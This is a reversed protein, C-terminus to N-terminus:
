IVMDWISIFTDTKSPFILRRPLFINSNKYYIKVLWYAPRLPHPGHGGPNRQSVIAGHFSGEYQEFGAYQRAPDNSGQQFAELSLAKLYEGELQQEHISGEGFGM